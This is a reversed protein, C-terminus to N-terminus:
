GKVMDGVVREIYYDDGVREINWFDQTAKHILTESSVRVFGNLQALSAVKVRQPAQAVRPVQGLPTVVQPSSEFFADLGSAGGAQIDDLKYDM